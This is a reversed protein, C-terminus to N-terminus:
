HTAAQQSMADIVTRSDPKNGTWIRFSEAAQEVLMGLGDIYPVGIQGCRQRLPEAAKYYNLDYCVADPAFLRAHLDPALGQHGLSTANIVLDFGSELSLGQWNIVSLRAAAGFREALACARALDRNVLTLSAPACAALSGLVSATAGGAGLILLRKGNLELGHNITLDTVLGPGDTTHAIWGTGKEYVLTNAARAQRVEDSASAALRWAQEKLPLTVNCGFGGEHQFAELAESFGEVGTEHLDYLIDLSFQAAFM